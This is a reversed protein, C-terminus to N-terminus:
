GCPASALCRNGLGWVFGDARCTRAGRDLCTWAPPHRSSLDLRRAWGLTESELTWKVSKM